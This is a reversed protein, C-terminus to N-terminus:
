GSADRDIEHLLKFLNDPVSYTFQENKSEAFPVRNRSRRSMKISLWWHHHTIGDPVPLHRLEDWHVYRGEPKRDLQSSVVQTFKEAGEASLETMLEILSPPKQPVKM